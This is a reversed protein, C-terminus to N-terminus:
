WVVLLMRSVFFRKVGNCKPQSQAQSLPLHKIKMVHYQCDECEDVEGYMELNEDDICFHPTNQVDISVDGTSSSVHKVLPIGPNINCSKIPVSVLSHGFVFSSNNKSTNITLNCNIQDVTLYEMAGGVGTYYIIQFM